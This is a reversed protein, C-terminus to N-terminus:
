IQDTKMGHKMNEKKRSPIEFYCNVTQRESDMVFGPCKECHQAMYEMNDTDCVIMQMTKKTILTLTKCCRSM